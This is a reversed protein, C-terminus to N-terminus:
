AGAVETLRERGRNTALSAFFHLAEDLSREGKQVALLVVGMEEAIHQMEMETRFVELNSPLKGVNELMTALRMRAESAGKLAGLSAAQNVDFWAWAASRFDAIDRVFGRALDELRDMPAEEIPSRQARAEKAVREVTRVTVAADRAVEARPDGAALRAVIMSDRMVKQAATLRKGGAAAVKAREQERKRRKAATSVATSRKTSKAPPTKPKAPAKRTSTTKKAAAVVLM